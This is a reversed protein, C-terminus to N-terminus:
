IKTSSTLEFNCGADLQLNKTALYTIAFDISNQWSQHSEDTTLEFLETYAAVEPTFNYTIKEVNIFENHYQSDVSNPARNYQFMYDLATKGNLSYNFPFGVGFGPLRNELHDANTAFKIYPIVALATAGGDNGWLNYKLRTTINGFGEM